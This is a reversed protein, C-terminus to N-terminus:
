RRIQTQALVSRTLQGAHQKAAGSASQRAACGHWRAALHATAEPKPQWTGACGWPEQVICIGACAEESLVTCADCMGGDVVGACRELKPRHM